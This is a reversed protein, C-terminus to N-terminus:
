KNELNVDVKEQAIFLENSTLLFFDNFSLFIRQMAFFYNGFKCLPTIM